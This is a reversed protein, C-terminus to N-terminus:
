VFVDFFIRRRQKRLDLPQDALTAPVDHAAPIQLGVAVHGRTLAKDTLDQDTVAVKGLFEADLRRRRDVKIGETM